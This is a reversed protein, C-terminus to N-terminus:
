AVLRRLGDLVERLTQVDPGEPAPARWTLHGRSILQSAVIRVLHVPLGLYASAEALSLVGRCLRVMDQQELPAYAPLPQDPVATLLTEPRLARGATAQGGTLVYPRIPGEAGPRTM